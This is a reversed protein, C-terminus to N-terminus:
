SRDLPVGLDADGDVDIRVAEELRKGALRRAPSWMPPVLRGRRIALLLVAMGAATAVVMAIVSAELGFAGGSLWEPGQVRGEVLGVEKIGSVPVGFVWGQTFNWGAHLGIAAWLRRTLMYVAGLLLGAEIAIAFAAVWTANPNFIHGAGFIAASIALAIWSGTMRETLRFIIGRLLIEESVGSVIAIGLLPWVTRWDNFGDVRYVGLAAAIAVVVAFLGAGAAVGAGLELEAGRLALDSVPEREAFRRLVVYAGIFLGAAVLAVVVSDPDFPGPRVLQGFRGALFAAVAFLAVGIVILTLPFAIIRRLLSPSPTENSDSM